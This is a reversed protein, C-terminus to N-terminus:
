IEIVWFAGENQCMAPLTVYPIGDHESSLGAHYHGQYVAKVTGSERIIQMLADANYIRHNEEIDPDISQHVFVYTDVRESSLREKFGEADPYYTNTWDSDGPAYHRGSRFFCADLFFLRRGELRLESVAPIGLTGYFEEETLAFADHNGMLCVTPIPSSRVVESVEKLNYLVQEKTKEVDILDGLCVVLACKEKEFHAYAEKIKRLSLSNYRCGCSLTKTSYHSDTYIGIKM